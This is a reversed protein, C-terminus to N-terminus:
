NELLHFTASPYITRELCVTRPISGPGVLRRSSRPSRRGKLTHDTTKDSTERTTDTGVGEGRKTYGM